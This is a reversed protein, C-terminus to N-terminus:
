EGGEQTDSVRCVDCRLGIGSTLSMAAGYASRRAELCDHCVIAGEGTERYRTANM